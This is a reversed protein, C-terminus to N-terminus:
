GIFIDLFVDHVARWSIISIKQYILLQQFHLRANNIVAVILAWTIGFLIAM